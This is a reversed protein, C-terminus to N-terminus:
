KGLEMEECEVVYYTKGKSTKKEEMKVPVYKAKPPLLVEKEDSSVYSFHNISTGLKTGPLHYIVAYGATGAVAFDYAISESSSWSSFGHADIPKHQSLCDKIRDIEEPFASIGRWIDSGSFKPAQDIYQEISKAYGEFQKREKENKFFGGSETKEEHYVAKIGKYDGRTYVDLAAEMKMAEERSCGTDCMIRLAFKEHNNPHPNSNTIIGQVISDNSHKSFDVKPLHGRTYGEPLSKYVEQCWEDEIRHGVKRRLEGLIKAKDQGLIYEVDEESRYKGEWTPTDKLKQREKSIKNLMKQGEKQGIIGNQIAYDVVEDVNINKPNHLHSEAIQTFHEYHKKDEPNANDLSPSSSTNNRSHKVQKEQANSFDQGKLPGGVAKGEKIPIHTGKVTIWDVDKPLEDKSDKNIHLIRRNYIEDVIEQIAEPYHRCLYPLDQTNYRLIGAADRYTLSSLSKEMNM